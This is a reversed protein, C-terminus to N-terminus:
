EYMGDPEYNEYTDAATMDPGDGCYACEEGDRLASGDGCHDCEFDPVDGEGCDILYPWGPVPM